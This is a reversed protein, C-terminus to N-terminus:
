RMGAGSRLNRYAVYSLTGGVATQTWFVLRPHKDAMRRTVLANVVAVSGKTLLLGTANRPILANAEYRTWQPHVLTSMVDAGQAATSFLLARRALTPSQAAASGAFLMLGLFVPLVHKCRIM